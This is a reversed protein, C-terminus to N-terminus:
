SEPMDPRADVAVKLREHSVSLVFSHVYDHRSEFLEIRHASWSAGVLPSLVRYCIKLEMSDPHRSEREDDM